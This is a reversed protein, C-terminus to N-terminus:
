RSLCPFPSRRGGQDLREGYHITCMAAAVEFGSERLRDRAHAVVSRSPQHGARFTELYIRPIGYEKCVRIVEDIDADTSLYRNFENAMFYTSLTLVDRNEQALQWASQTSASNSVFSACGLVVLAVGVTFSFLIQKRPRRAAIMQKRRPTKKTGNTGSSLRGSASCTSHWSTGSYTLQRPEM